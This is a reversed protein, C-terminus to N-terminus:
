RNPNCGLYMSIYCNTPVISPVKVLISIIMAKFISDAQRLRLSSLGDMPWLFRIAGNNKSLARVLCLQLSYILSLFRRELLWPARPAKAVISDFSQPFNLASNNEYCLGSLQFIMDFCPHSVELFICVLSELNTSCSFPRTTGSTEIEIPDAPDIIRRYWFSSRCTSGISITPM